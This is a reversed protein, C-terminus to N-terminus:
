GLIQTTSAIGLTIGALIGITCAPIVTARSGPFTLMGLTLLLTFTYLFLGSVFWVVPYRVFPLHQPPPHPHEGQVSIDVSKLLSESQQLFAVPTKFRPNRILKLSSAIGFRDIALYTEKPCSISQRTGTEDIVKISFNTMTNITRGSSYVSTGKDSDFIEVTVTEAPLWGALPPWAWITGIFSCLAVLLGCLIVVRLNLQKLKSTDNEM